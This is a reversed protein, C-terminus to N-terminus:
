RNTKLWDLMIANFENPKEINPLHRADPIEKYSAGPVLSAIRRNESAPTGQDDAGCVVLTPITLGPLESSFDFDQLAEACGLFGQVSSGIITDRIQAWRAPNSQRFAPTLWREMTGEAIAALSGRKEVATTRTIWAARADAPAAPLTDCLMMSLMRGPYRIAIAQGIMGGISLGIYHVPGVELAEVVAVVDSALAAMTYSGPVPDSGGHGRMDLRLVRYGEELLAPVQESWMGGDSSLSHTLCVLPGDQGVFDYYVNHGNISVLM